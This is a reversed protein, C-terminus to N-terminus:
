TLYLYKVNNWDEPKVNRELWLIKPNQMEVSMKGGVYKLVEHSEKLNNIEDTEGKARHDMWMVIDFQDCALAAKCSVLSCTADFGIGKVNGSDYTGKIQKITQCVASWIEDSSQEYYDPAPSSVSIKITASNLLKGSANFLGARVSYSGVDVGIFLSDSNMNM